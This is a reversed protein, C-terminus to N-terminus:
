SLKNKLRTTGLDMIKFGFSFKLKLKFPWIIKVSSNSISYQGIPQGTKIGYVQIVGINHGAAIVSGNNQIRCVATKDTQFLILLSRTM